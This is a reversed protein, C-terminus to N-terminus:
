LFNHLEDHKAVRAAVYGGLVSCALGVLSQLGYLLTNARIAAMVAAQPQDKPSGTLETAIMYVILPITLIVTAVIDTVGGVLVGKVSIKNM